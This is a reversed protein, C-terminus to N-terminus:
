ANTLTIRAASAVFYYQYSQPSVIQEWTVGDTSVQASTIIAQPEIAAMAIAIDGVNPSEGLRYVLAAALAIGDAVVDFQQGPVRPYLTAQVYLTETLANDWYVTQTNGQPRVVAYSQAGTMACGPAKKVYIAKAINVPAGGSVIVWIGNAPVGLDPTATDNEAVFADSCGPVTNLLAARVADAPGVAQLFYSNAQRIKLQPDTEEPLGEVDNAITPNNVGSIGPTITVITQITNPATQVQGIVTCAFALTTTGAGSFVYSTQLQYQNGATDAVTFVSAGPNAVLVDQGPLTIATTATVAVYAVTYTGQNRAIGSLAVRQDLVVGFASDLAFSNYVQM